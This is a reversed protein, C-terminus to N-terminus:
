EAEHHAVAIREGDRSCLIGAVNAEKTEYGSFIIGTQPGRRVNSARDPFPRSARRTSSPLEWARNSVSNTVVVARRTEATARGRRRQLKSRGPITPFRSYVYIFNDRQRFTRPPQCPKHLAYIHSGRALSKQSTFLEIFSSWAFLGSIPMFSKTATNRRRRQSM